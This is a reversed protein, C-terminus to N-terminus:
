GTTAPFGGDWKFGFSLHQAILKISRCLGRCFLNAGNCTFSCAIGFFLPNAPRSSNSPHFVLKPFCYTEHAFSKAAEEHHSARNRFSATPAGLLSCLSQKLVRRLLCCLTVCCSCCPASSRGTDMALLRCYAERPVIAEQCVIRRLPV